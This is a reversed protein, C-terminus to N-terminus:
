HEQAKSTTDRAMNPNVAISACKQCIKDMPVAWGPITAPHLQCSDGCLPYYEKYQKCHYIESHMSKHWYREDAMVVDIMKVGAEAVKVKELIADDMLASLEATARDCTPSVSFVPCRDPYHFCKSLNTSLFVASPCNRQVIELIKEKDM